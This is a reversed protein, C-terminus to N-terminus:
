HAAQTGEPVSTKLVTEPPPTQVPEAKKAKRTKVQEKHAEEIESIESRLEDHDLIDM